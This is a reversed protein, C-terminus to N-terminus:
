ECYAEALYADHEEALDPPGSGLFGVAAMARRRREGDPLSRDSVIWADVSRRILEAVSVGERAARQKLAAAQVETLQIQTRVV